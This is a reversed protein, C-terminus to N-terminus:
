PPATATVISSVTNPKRPKRYRHHSRSISVSNGSQCFRLTTTDLIHNGFYYASSGPAFPYIHVFGCLFFVILENMTSPQMTITSQILQPVAVIDIGDNFADKSILSHRHFISYQKTPFTIPASIQPRCPHRSITWGTAACSLMLKYFPRSYSKRILPLRVM